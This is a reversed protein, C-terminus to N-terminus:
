DGQNRQKAGGKFSECFFALLAGERQVWFIPPLFELAAFFWGLLSGLSCRAWGLAPEKSSMLRLKAAACAGFGAAEGDCAAGSTPAFFFFFRSNPRPRLFFSLFSLTLSTNPVGARSVDGRAASGEGGALPCRRDFVAGDSTAAEEDPLAFFPPADLLLALELLM